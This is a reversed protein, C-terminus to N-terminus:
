AAPKWRLKVGPQDGAYVVHLVRRHSLTVAQSSRHVILPKMLFVVGPAAGCVTFQEWAIARVDADRLKESQHMGPAVALARREIGPL